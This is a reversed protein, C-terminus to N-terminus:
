GVAPRFYFPRCDWRGLVWGDTESWHAVAMSGRMVAGELYPVSDTAQITRIGGNGDDISRWRQKIIRLGGDYLLDGFASHAVVSMEPAADAFVFEWYGPLVTVRCYSDLFGFKRRVAETQGQCNLRWTSGGITVDIDGFLDGGTMEIVRVRGREGLVLVGVNVFNDPDYVPYGDDIHMVLCSTQPLARPKIEVGIEPRRDLKETSLVARVIRRHQADDYGILSGGGV